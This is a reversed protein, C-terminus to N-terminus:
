RFANYSIAIRITYIYKQVYVACVCVHYSVCAYKVYEHTMANCSATVRLCTICVCVCVSVTHVCVHVCMVHCCTCM